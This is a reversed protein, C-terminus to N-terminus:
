YPVSSGNSPIVSLLVGPWSGGKRYSELLWMGYVSGLDTIFCLMQARSQMDSGSISPLFCAILPRFLNDLFPVHYLSLTLDVVEGNRATWTGQELYPVLLPRVQKITPVMTARAAAFCGVFQACLLARTWLTDSTPQCTNNDSKYPMSCQLSRPPLAVCDLREAGIIVKSSRDIMQTSMYPILYIKLRDKLSQIAELRTLDHASKLIGVMRQQRTAEWGKFSRHIDETQFQFTSRILKAISNALAAASEIASNGGQGLNPTM